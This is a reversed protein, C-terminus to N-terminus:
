RKTGSLWQVFKDWWSLQPKNVPVSSTNSDPQTTSPSQPPTQPTSVPSPSQQAQALQKELDHVRALAADKDAANQHSQEQFIAANKKWADADALSATLKAELDQGKTKWAVLDDYVAQDVYVQNNGQNTAQDLVKPHIFTAGRFSLRYLRCTGDGGGIHDNQEFVEQTTPNVVIATHGVSSGGWGAPWSVIDGTVPKTTISYASPDANAPLDCANGWIHPAKIRGLFVEILGVCEGMNQPTDGIGPKGNLDTIFATVVATVTEPSM